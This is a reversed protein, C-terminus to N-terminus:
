GCWGRQLGGHRLRRRHSSELEAPMSAVQGFQLTGNAVTMTGAYGTNTGTLTSRAGSGDKTFSGSGAFSGAFGTDIGQAVTLAASGLDVTGGAHRVALVATLNYGGLDLTGGNVTYDTRGM